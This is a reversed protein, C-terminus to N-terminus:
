FNTRWTVLGSNELNFPVLKAGFKLAANEVKDRKFSKCFVFMHGGGGAGSIKGGLAGAKKLEKYLQDIRSNSIQSGFKKKLQWAKDLLIGFEKLNGSLLIEKMEIVLKKTELMAKQTDRQTKINKIEEEIIGGSSKREGVNLLIINEELSSIVEKSINLPTVRVFNNGKFEIFNIGGFASAYQDQRGGLNKLEDRELKYALEAIEYKDLKRDLIENFLGICSVFLTASGGLGSRPGIDKYIYIDLGRNEKYLHKIVAKVIDFRGDYKVNKIEPYITEGEGVITIKLKKDNRFKLTSTIYKTITTNIVAGGYREPFPSVDTGGGIFSIRLPARSKILQSM